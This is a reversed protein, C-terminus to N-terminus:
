FQLWCQLGKEKGLDEEEKRDEERKGITKGEKGSDEEKKGLGEKIKGM